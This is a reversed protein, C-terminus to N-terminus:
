GKPPKCRYDYKRKPSESDQRVVDYLNEAHGSAMNHVYATSVDLLDALENASQWEYKPEKQARAILAKAKPKKQIMDRMGQMANIFSVLFAEHLELDDDDAHQRFAGLVSRLTEDLKGELDSKGNTAPPSPIPTPKNAEYELRSKLIEVSKILRPVVVQEMEKSPPCGQNVWQGYKSKVLELEERSLSGSKRLATLQM